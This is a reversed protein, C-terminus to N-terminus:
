GEEGFLDFPGNLSVIQQPQCESRLPCYSCAEGPEAPYDARSAYALVKSITPFRVGKLDSSHIVDRDVRGDSDIWDLELTFKKYDPYLTKAVWLQIFAEKLDTKPRSTKCDRIVLTAPDSERVIVRDLRASIICIPMNKNYLTFSGFQEVAITGLIDEEDDNGIYTRIMAMCKAIDDARAAPDAYRVSFLAQKVFFELRDLNSLSGNSPDYVNKLVQHFALGFKTAYNATRFPWHGLERLTHFKKACELDNINSPTIRPLPRSESM